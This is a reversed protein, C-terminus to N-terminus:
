TGSGPPSAPPACGRRWRRPPFPRRSSRRGSHAARLLPPSGTSRCAGTRLGRHASLGGRVASAGGAGDAAAAGRGGHRRPRAGDPTRAARRRVAFAVSATRPAAQRREGVQRSGAGGVRLVAESERRAASRVRLRGGRARPRCGASSLPGRAAGNQAGVWSAPRASGGDQSRRTTVADM